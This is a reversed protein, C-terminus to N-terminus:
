DFMDEEAAALWAMTDAVEEDEIATHERVIELMSETAVDGERQLEEVTTVVADRVHFSERTLLRQLLEEFAEVRFSEEMAISELRHISRVLHRNHRQLRENEQQLLINADYQAKLEEVLYVNLPEM